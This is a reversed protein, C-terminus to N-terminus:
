NEYDDFNFTLDGEFDKFDNTILIDKDSLRQTIEKSIKRLFYNEDKLKYTIWWDYAWVYEEVYELNENELIEKDM